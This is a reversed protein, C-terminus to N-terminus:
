HSNGAFVMDIRVYIEQFGHHSSIDKTTKEITVDSNVLSSASLLGARNVVPTIIHM